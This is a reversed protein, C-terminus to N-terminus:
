LFHDRASKSFAISKLHMSSLIICDKYNAIKKLSLFTLKTCYDRHLEKWTSCIAFFNRGVTKDLFLFSFTTCTIGTATLPLKGVLTHIQGICYTRILTKELSNTRCIYVVCIRDSVEVYYM